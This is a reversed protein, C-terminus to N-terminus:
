EVNPPDQGIIPRPDRGLLYGPNQWVIMGPDRGILIGPDQGTIDPLRWVIVFQPALLGNATVGFLILAAINRNTSVVAVPFAGAELLGTVTRATSAPTWLGSSQAVHGTATRDTSVTSRVTAGVFGVGATSIDVSGTILSALNVGVTVLGTPTSNKSYATVDPWNGVVILGSPTSDKSYAGVDPWVGAEVLGTVNADRAVTSRATTGSFGIGATTIDATSTILASPWTGHEVLGTVTANRSVTAYVAEGAAVLAAVSVDHTVTARPTSAHWLSGTVTRDTAVLATPWTAHFVQGVASRDTAVTSAPWVGAELLGVMSVDHTYASAYILSGLEILGDTPHDESVVGTDSDADQQWQFAMDGVSGPGVMGQITDDVPAGAGGGSDQLNVGLLVWHDTFSSTFGINVTGATGPLTAGVSCGGATDTQYNDNWRQTGPSTGSIADGHAGCTYVLDNSSTSTVPLNGSNAVLGPQSSTANNFAGVSTAFVGGCVIAGSISTTIAINHAAGDGCALLGFVESIATNSGSAARRVQSTMSVGNYTVTITCGSMDTGGKGVHVSAVLSAGVAGTISVNLTTVPVGSTGAHGSAVADFAAV